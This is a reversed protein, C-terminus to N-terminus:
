RANHKKLYDKLLKITDPDDGIADLFQSIALEGYSDVIGDFLGALNNKVFSKKSIQPSYFYAKGRKERKLLGKEAMRSLETMVTTYALDCCLADLVQRPKMPKDSGWFLDMIRQELKGLLKSKMILM